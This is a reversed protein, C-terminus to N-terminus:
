KHVLGLDIREGTGIQLLRFLKYSSSLLPSNRKKRMSETDIILM